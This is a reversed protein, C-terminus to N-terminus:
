FSVLIFFLSVCQCNLHVSLVRWSLSHFCIPVCSPMRSPSAEDRQGGGVLEVFTDESEDDTDFVPETGSFVLGGLQKLNRGVCEMGEREAADFSPIFPSDLAVSRKVVGEDFELAGEVVFEGPEGFLSTKGVETEENSSMGNIISAALSSKGPPNISEHM